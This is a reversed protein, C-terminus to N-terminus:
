LGNMWGQEVTGGGVCQMTVAEAPTPPPWGQSTALCCHVPPRGTYVATGDRVQPASCDCLHLYGTCYETDTNHQMRHQMGAM